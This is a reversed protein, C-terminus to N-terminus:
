KLITFSLCRGLSQKQSQILSQAKTKGTTQRCCAEMDLGKTRGIESSSILALKFKVGRKSQAFLEQRVQETIQM